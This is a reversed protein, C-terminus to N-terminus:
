HRKIIDQCKQKLDRAKKEDITLSVLKVCQDITQVLAEKSEGAGKLKTVIKDADSGLVRLAAHMLETKLSTFAMLIASHLRWDRYVGIDM